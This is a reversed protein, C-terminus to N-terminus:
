IFMLIGGAISMDVGVSRVRVGTIRIDAALIRLVGRCVNALNVGMHVDTNRPCYECRRRRIESKGLCYM